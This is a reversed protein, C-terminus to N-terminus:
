IWNFIPHKKRKFYTIVRLVKGKFATNNCKLINKLIDYADDKSVDSDSYIRRIGLYHLPEAQLYAFFHPLLAPIFYFDRKSLAGM